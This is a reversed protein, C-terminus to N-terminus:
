FSASGEIFASDRLIPVSSSCNADAALAVDFARGRQILEQGSFSKELCHFIREQTSLFLSRALEAEISLEGELAAIVAGAGLWDEIAVRVGGGKWREGGAIVSIREGIKMAARAVARANRICGALTPINGTQLSLTSGNPSPLVLKTGGPIEVLSAPSLSYGPTRSSVSLTAGVRAAFEISTLDNWGYPYVVAGRSVAIDVSTTFSLVDIIVFVDTDDILHAIGDAGWECSVRASSM